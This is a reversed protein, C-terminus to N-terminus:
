GDSLKFADFSGTYRQFETLHSKKDLAQSAAVMSTDLYTM